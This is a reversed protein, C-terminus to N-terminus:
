VDDGTAMTVVVHVWNEGSFKIKNDGYECANRQRLLTMLFEINTAFQIPDGEYKVDATEEFWGTNNQSKILLKNDKLQLIVMPMDKTLDSKSFVEARELIETITEPFEIGSGEFELHTSVDPFEGEFVRSSFVTEDDTGFHVWGDGSATKTITYGSLDKAASAPLLFPAPVKGNLKYRMIQYGDSAVVTDGDINLCTLIPRSMDTSACPHCLKLADLFYKPLKEWKGFEGIEEVPLKVEQEFVLGARSKGATIQVQNGKWTVKITDQKVRNLFSYLADAKVAGRINLDKVPHSISIEDNYTVVRDGLFAFSTAQEILDRNALGPKVRELATLLETKNIKMTTM